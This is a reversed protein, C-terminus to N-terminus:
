QASGEAGVVTFKENQVITKGTIRDTIRLQVVYAGPSYAELPVPGITSAMMETEIPIEPAQAVPTRGAKLISFAVVSDAKQNSPDLGLDYIVYFFIVADSQQLDRGKYPILQTLGLRYAAYAHEPDAEADRPVDEIKRVFLISAVSPLKRTSGDPTTEVASLDPVKIKETILAGQLGEEGILAGVKLTYRGPELSTGYTAVFSGDPQVEARVPQETWSVEAGDEDLASTTLVVDAVKRGDRTEVPLDPVTGHLVGIVGTVGESARMFRTDTTIEFDQRPTNLLVRAPSDKPLQDELSVLRGDEGTKYGLQPQVVNAAAIEELVGRIGSPARCKSDFAIKAEGGEFTRGGEKSYYTWVEPVRALVSVSGVQVQSDDPEGLLILARGCDTLSGKRGPVRFDRNAKERLAEYEPQYENEPTSLDPDRRAWFIKQFEERDTKSELDKYTKEEDALMIPRVRELWKKDDDDLKAAVAPGAWSVLMALLTVAASPRIRM